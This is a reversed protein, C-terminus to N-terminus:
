RDELFVINLPVIDDIEGYSLYGKKKQNILQEVEWFMSGIKKSISQGGMNPM